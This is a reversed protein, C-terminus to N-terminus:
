IRILRGDITIPKQFAISVRKFYIHNPNILYNNEEPVIVSPLMLALTKRSSIFLDGIVKIADPAPNQFWNSPLKDPTIIELSYDPIDLCIICFDIVPATSIHVLSELLALSASSATYLVYTGISHWRGGYMAAGAGSFDNVYKCKSIRYVKM